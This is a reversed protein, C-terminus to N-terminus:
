LNVVLNITTAIIITGFLCALLAHKLAMKRLSSTGIATDSVQFTMGMTFALYAFDSYAPPREGFDIGGVPESYYQRAYELMFITHVLLWSLVVSVIGLGTYLLQEIGSSGGAKALLFGIAVLSALSACILIIGTATHTNDERGAFEATQRADMPWVVLYVWVVFVLAATDWGILSACSAYGLVVVLACAAAGAFLAALLRTRAIARKQPRTTM